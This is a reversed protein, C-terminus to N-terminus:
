LGSCASNGSRGIALFTITGPAFSVSGAATPAGEIPPLNGGGDVKLAAGNLEVDGNQLPVASLTYRRSELPVEIAAETPSNNIVLLTVGGSSGRLCHAYVHRGEAIEVGPDLVTTGMLRRWLLAAWYNPRPEFTKQDLLGYDSAALTNHIVVQVGQKALRGLQDLYRFTDLFTSAWRNGGCAADATETLWMPKGPDFEDRLNRYFALTQDTRALWEESLAADASTQPMGATGACRQSAAGYHHYSFADIDTGMRRLMDSTAIVGQSGYHIMANPATTEGVSGPGLVRMGSAAQRGFSAFLKFDRGFAEADYGKPAGGMTAMTPENMFEAAAIDGGISRTYDLFGRAQGPMWVGASDRTGPSIAVSTVIRADTAAAFDVVGKWRERSLVGNFGSPPSSPAPDSDAFYMTNAWTGSVRVYAPGLAAALKRLRGNSLDVPPRYEYLNADMGAPVGSRDPAGALRESSAQGYPKWFMGGTVELMEINYSQYREDVSGVRTMKAFPALKM